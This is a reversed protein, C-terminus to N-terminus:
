GFAADRIFDRMAALNFFMEVVYDSILSKFATTIHFDDIVTAEPCFIHYLVHM